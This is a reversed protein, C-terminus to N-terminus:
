GDGGPPKQQADRQQMQAQEQLQRVEALVAHAAHFVPSLKHRNQGLDDEKASAGLIDRDILVFFKVEGPKPVNTDSIKKFHEINRAVGVALNRAAAAPRDHSGAGIMGAGHSFYVSISSDSMAALTVIGHDYGTEMIVGRLAGEPAQSNWHFAEDRLQLYIPALEYAM